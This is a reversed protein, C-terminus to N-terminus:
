GVGTKVIAEGFLANVLPSKGVGTAGFLIINFREKKEEAEQKAKDADFTQSNYDYSDGLFDEYSSAM